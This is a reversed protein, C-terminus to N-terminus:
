LLSMGLSFMTEKESSNGRDVRNFNEFREPAYYIGESMVFRSGDSIADPDVIKVLGDNMIFIRRPELLVPEGLESIGNLCSQMISWLDQEDFFRSEKVRAQIEEQLTITPYEYIIYLKYTGSCFNTKVRGDVEVVNLLNEKPTGNKKSRYRDLMKRYEEQDMFSIEKLLFTDKSTKHKLLTGQESKSEITYAHLLDGLDQEEVASTGQGM